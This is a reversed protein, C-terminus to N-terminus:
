VYYPTDYFPKGWWFYRRWWPIYRKGWPIHGRRNSWRRWRRNWFGEINDAKTMMLIIIIVIIALIILHKIM